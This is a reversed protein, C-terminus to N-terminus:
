PPGERWAADMATLVDDISEQGTLLGTGYTTLANGVDANWWTDIPNIADGHAALEPAFSTLYSPLQDKLLQYPTVGGNLKAFLADQAPRALFDIFTQAAAQNQPSSHANVAPGPQPNLLIVSRSPSTSDPFPHQSLDFQPDGAEIAGYHGTLIPYMLAQGQAFEVDGAATTLASPGPQFCGANNMDVLEQLAQHWGATGEFTVQGARHQQEWDPDSAYVTTLAIDALLQQVVGSNNAALLMPVTGAAKAKACVELLQSFTQPVQLGLRRFLDDNTFIGKLSVAPSFVFLGEHYKSISTLLRAQRRVWPENVLPALYGDKALVCVSIPTGCGPWVLLLDPGTGAALETTEAEELAGLTGTYTVNVTINPYVREFNAILVGWATQANQTVMTLTVQDEGAPRAESAGVGLAFALAALSAIISRGRAGAFGGDGSSHSATRGALLSPM